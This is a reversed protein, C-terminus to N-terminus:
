IETRLVSTEQDDASDENDTDSSESEVEEEDDSEATADSDDADPDEDVPLDLEETPTSRLDLDGENITLQIDDINTPISNKWFPSIAIEYDSVFELDELAEEVESLTMGALAEIIDSEVIEYGIRVPTDLSFSLDGDSYEVDTIELESKNQIMAQSDVTSLITTIEVSAVVEVEVQNNSDGENERINFELTSTDIDVLIENQAVEEAVLDALNDEIESELEDAADNVDEPDAVGREGIFGGSFESSAEAYVQGAIDTSDLGPVGFRGTFNGNYGDGVDDAEVEVGELVGPEGGSAAPVVIANPVRYILGDPSEFRTTPILRQDTDTENYVTLTGRARVSVDEVTNAPVSRTDSITVTSVSYDESNFELVGNEEVAQLSTEITVEASHLMNGTVFFGIVLVIVVGIIGFLKNNGASKYRRSSFKREDAFATKPKSSKVGSQNAGKEIDRISRSSRRLQRRSNMRSSTKKAIEDLEQGASRATNQPNNLESGPADNENESM